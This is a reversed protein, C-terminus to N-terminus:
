PARGLVYGTVNVWAEEICSDFILDVNVGGSFTINATEFSSFWNDFKWTLIDRAEVLLAPLFM